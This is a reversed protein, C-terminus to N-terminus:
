KLSTMFSRIRELTSPAQWIADVEADLVALDHVRVLFQLRLQRYESNYYTGFLPSNLNAQVDTPLFADFANYARVGIWPRLGFIKFRHELKEYAAVTAADPVSDSMNTYWADPREPPGCISPRISPSATLVM